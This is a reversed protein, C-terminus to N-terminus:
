GDLSRWLHLCALSRYPRWPEAVADFERISSAMSLGYLRVMAKKIALDGPAFVDPRRLTFILFMHATWEGIGKIDTLTKIVEADSLEDLAKMSKPNSTWAEALAHLYAAKQGSIGLARLSTPDANLLTSPNLGERDNAWDFVRRVITAAAKTSLQQSIIARCLAEFHPQQEPLAIPGNQTVVNLLIPDHKELHAIFANHADNMRRIHMM